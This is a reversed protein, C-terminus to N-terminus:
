LVDTVEDITEVPLRVHALEGRQQALRASPRVTAEPVPSPNRTTSRPELRKSTDPRAKSAMRWRVRSTRSPSNKQRRPGLPHPFVVTSFMSAPNSGTDLPAM